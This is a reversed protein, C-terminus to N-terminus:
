ARQTIQRDRYITEQEHLDQKFEETQLAVSSIYERKLREGDARALGLATSLVNRIQRGNFKYRKGEKRAWKQLDALDDVLGKNALQELFSDYIAIKQEPQLETFKIALDSM